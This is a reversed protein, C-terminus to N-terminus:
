RFPNSTTPHGGSGAALADLNPSRVWDYRGYARITDWRHEDTMIWLINPRETNAARNDLGTGALLAAGAGGVHQLFARRSM